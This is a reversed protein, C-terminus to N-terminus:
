KAIHSDEVIISSLIPKSSTLLAWFAVDIAAAIILKQLRPILALGQSEWEAM